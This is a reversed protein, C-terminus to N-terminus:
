NKGNGEEKVILEVSSVKGDCHINEDPYVTIPCDLKEGDRYKDFCDRCIYGIVRNKKEEELAKVKAEIIEAKDELKKALKSLQILSKNM